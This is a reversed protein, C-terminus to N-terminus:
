ILEVEENFDVEAFAFSVVCGDPAYSDQLNGDITGYLVGLRWDRIILVKSSENLEELRERTDFDCYFSLSLSKRSHEGIQLVPRKRGVFQTLTKEFSHTRDKTPKGDLQYMLKVMDIPNDYEAITTQLFNLTGVEVNSDAFSFDPNVVRVFYEYRQHPRATYDDFASEKTMAIRLYNNKRLESRYVYVTKGTNNFHLRIFHRLNIAVQLTLADPAVTNITFPLEGWDSVLGYENTIRIRVLYNGNKFFQNATHTFVNLFPQSGTEYIKIDNQRIELEWAMMNTASFYIVPRNSNSVRVIVPKEPVGITFFTGIASWPGADGAAGYAMVQWEVKSQSIIPNTMVTSYAPNSESSYNTKTVWSGGDVRYRVDFRSPFTDFPSNYVWELLAGNIGSVSVNLPFILTPALPPTNTLLFSVQNSWPGWEDGAKNRVRFSVEQTTFKNAAFTYQNIAGTIAVIIPQGGRETYEIESATQTRPNGPTNNFIWAFTIAARPDKPTTPSLNTPALPPVGVLDFSVYGSWPGWDSTKNRVRFTVKGIKFTNAPFVYQNTPTNIDITIKEGSVEYYEIQSASQTFPSGAENNFTWSFTISTLPDKATTPSLSTPALPSYTEFLGNFILESFPYVDLYDTYGSGARVPDVSLQVIAEDYAMIASSFVISIYSTEINLSGRSTTLSVSRGGMYMYIEANLTPPTPTYYNGSTVRSSLYGRMKLYVSDIRVIKVSRYPKTSFYLDAFPGSIKQIGSQAAITGGFTSVIDTNTSPCTISTIEAM